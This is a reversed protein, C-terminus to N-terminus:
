HCHSLYWYKCCRRYLSWNWCQNFHPNLSSSGRSTVTTLNSTDSFYISTGINSISIDTGGILSVQTNDFINLATGANIVLKWFNNTTDKDWASTNISSVVGGNSTLVLNNDATSGISGIALSGGINVAGNVDLKQSPSTTGIGVSGDSRLTLVDVVNGTDYSASDKLGITLQTKPLYPAGLTGYSKMKFDVSAPYLNAPYTPRVLRLLSDENTNNFAGMVLLKPTLSGLSIQETAGDAGVQLKTLPNPSGVGVNGSAGVFLSQINGLGLFSLSNSATNIITAQTLTGGLGFLNGSYLTLGNTAAYTTGIGNNSITITSGSQSLSIGVGNVFNVLNGSLIATNGVSNTQLDWHNYNDYTGSDFAM